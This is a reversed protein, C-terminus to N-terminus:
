GGRPYCPRKWGASNMRGKRSFIDRISLRFRQEIYFDLDIFERDMARALARGFLTTKGCAM